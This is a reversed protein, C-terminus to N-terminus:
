TSIARGQPYSRRERYMIVYGPLATIQYAPLARALLGFLEGAVMGDEPVEWRSARACESRLAPDTQYHFNNYPLDRNVQALLDAVGYMGTQISDM